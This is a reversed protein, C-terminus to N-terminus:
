IFYHFFPSPLFFSPFLLSHLCFEKELWETFIRVHRSCQQEWISKFYTNWFKGMGRLWLYKVRLIVMLWTLPDIFSVPPLLKKHRKSCVELLVGTEQLAESSSSASPPRQNIAGQSVRVGRGPDWLYSVAWLAARQLLCAFTLLVCSNRCPAPCLCCSGRPCSLPSRLPAM